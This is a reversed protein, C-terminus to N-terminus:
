ASWISGAVALWRNPRASKRSRLSGSDVPPISSSGHIVSERRGVERCFGQHALYGVLEQLAEVAPLLRVNILVCAAVRLDIRNQAMDQGSELENAQRHIVRPVGGRSFDGVRHV